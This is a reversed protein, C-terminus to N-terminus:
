LRERLTSCITIYHCSSYMLNDLVVPDHRLDAPTAARLVQELEPILGIVWRGRPGQCLEWSRDGRPFSVPEVERLNGRAAGRHGVLIQLQHKHVQAGLLKALVELSVHLSPGRIVVDEDLYM